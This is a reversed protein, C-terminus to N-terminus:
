GFFQTHTDTHAESWQCLSPLPLLQQRDSWVLSSVQWLPFLKSHQWRRRRWSLERDLCNKYISLFSETLHSSIFLLLVASRTIPPPLPMLPSRASQAWHKVIRMSCRKNPSVSKYRTAAIDIPRIFWHWQAWPSPPFSLSLSLCHPLDIPRDEFAKERERERKNKSVKSWESEEERRPLRLGVNSVAASAAGQKGLWHRM